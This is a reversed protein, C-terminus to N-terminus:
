NQCVKEEVVGGKPKTVWQFMHEKYRDLCM